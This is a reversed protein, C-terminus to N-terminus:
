QLRHLLVLRLEGAEGAGHEEIREELDGHLAEEGVRHIATVAVHSGPLHDTIGAQGGSIALVDLFVEALPVVLRRARDGIEGSPAIAISSTAGRRRKKFPAPAAPAAPMSPMISLACPCDGAADGATGALVPRFGASRTRLFPLTIVTSAAEVMACAIAMAPSRMTATPGSATMAATVLGAVRTISRFPLATMGPSVSPWAWISRSASRLTKGASPRTREIRSMWSRIASSARPLAGPSHITVM